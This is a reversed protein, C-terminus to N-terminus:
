LRQILLVDLCFEALNGRPAHLELVPPWFLHCNLLKGWEYLVELRIKVRVCITM